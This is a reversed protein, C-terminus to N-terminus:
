SFLLYQGNETKEFELINKDDPQVPKFIRKLEQETKEMVAQKTMNWAIRDSWGNLFYVPTWYESWSSMMLTDGHVVSCAVGCLSMQIYCMQTALLDIDQAHFLIGTSPNIGQDIAAKVVAILMAGAGCAPDSVTIYGKSELQEKLNGCQMSAMMDCINQPTFFQGAQKKSLELAQYAEGLFDHYGTELSMVIQAFAKSFENLEKQEYKEDFRKFRELTKEEDCQYFARRLNLVSIECFDNFLEWVSHRYTLSDFTKIFEKQFKNVM